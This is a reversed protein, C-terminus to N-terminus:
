AVGAAPRRVVRATTVIQGLHRASHEAAHFLLGGVTSPLRARGVDRPELLSDSATARLIEIARDLERRVLAVLAGADDAAASAERERALAAQQEASLPHGAAYTFLRDVAGVLHRVHFAISAAGGPRAALEGPSLTPLLQELEERVALLAHAAPQLAAPVGPVPGRLWVEPRAAASM